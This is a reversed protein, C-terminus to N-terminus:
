RKRYFFSLALMTMCMWAFVDGYRCYFTEGKGGAPNCLIIGEQFPEIRNVIRGAPNICGSIGTNASRLVPRRFEVARFVAMSFHQYHASTKGFWADNSINVLVEAGNQVFGRVLEPFAIEFCILTGLKGAITNFITFTEGESYQRPGAYELRLVDIFGLPFYEGFPLLHIKDHVQAIGSGNLLFASNFFAYGAPNSIYRPAGILLMGNNQALVALLDEPMLEQFYTQTANEPWIILQAGQIFADKTRELYRALQKDQSENKWRDDQLISLQVIATKSQPLRNGTEIRNLRFAGYLLVSILLIIPPIIRLAAERVNRLSDLALYISCNAFVLLFSIGYVGTTDSIQILSLWRYQSHGFLDWPVGSFLHARLYESLVWASATLLAKLYFPLVSQMLKVSILAFLGYYLGLFVGIVLLLFLLSVLFGVATYFYLANFVWYALSIMHLSGFLCGLLFSRGRSATSLVFLFPVLSIWALPWLDINPFAATCLLAAVTTLFLQAPMSLIKIPATKSKKKKMFYFKLTM